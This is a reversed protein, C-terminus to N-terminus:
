FQTLSLTNGDPDPFWAVKAGSPSSWIGLDDQQMFGYRHFAIGRATLERVSQAIDTVAWGLVTFPQPTFTEVIQVRLMTGNADFTLAFQDEGTLQLGLVDGYFRRAAEPQSTAVLAVIPAAGLM